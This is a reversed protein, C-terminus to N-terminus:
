NCIVKRYEYTLDSEHKKRDVNDVECTCPRGV